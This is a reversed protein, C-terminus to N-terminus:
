PGALASKASRAPLSKKSYM